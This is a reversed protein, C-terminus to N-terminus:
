RRVALFMGLMVGVAGAVGLAVGPKERVTERAGSLTKRTSRQMYSGFKEADHAIENSIADGLKTAGRGAKRLTERTDRVLGDPM